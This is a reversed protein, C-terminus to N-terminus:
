KFYENLDFGWGLETGDPRKCTDYCIMKLDYCEVVGPYIGTWEGPEGEGEECDCCIRQQGCITCIVVDCNDDHIEGPKVGCDPCNRITIKSKLEECIRDIETNSLGLQKPKLFM